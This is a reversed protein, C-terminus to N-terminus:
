SEINRWSLTRLERILINVSTPVVRMVIFIKIQNIIFKHIILAGKAWWGSLLGKM